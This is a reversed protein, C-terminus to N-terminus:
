GYTIVIHGTQAETFSISLNNNDIFNIPAQILNNDQDRISTIITDTNLQHNVNWVLSPTDFVFRKMTTNQQGVKGDLLLLADIINTATSLYNSNQLDEMTGLLSIMDPKNIIRRIESGDLNTFYLDVNEPDSAKVIYITSASLIEPLVNVREIRLFSM